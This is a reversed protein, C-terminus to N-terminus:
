ADTLVITSIAPLISRKCSSAIFTFTYYSFCPIDWPMGHMKIINGMWFKLGINGDRYALKNM